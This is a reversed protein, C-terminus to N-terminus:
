VTASKKECGVNVGMFIFDRTSKRGHPMERLKLTFLLKTGMYTASITKHRYVSCFIKKNSIGCFVNIHIYAPYFLFFIFVGSHTRHMALWVSNLESKKLVIKGERMLYGYLNLEYKKARKKFNSRSSTLQKPFEGTQLYMKIKHYISTEM